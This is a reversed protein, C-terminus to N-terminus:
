VIAHCKQFDRLREAHQRPSIFLQVATQTSVYMEVLDTSEARDNMLHFTWRKNCRQTCRTGPTPNHLSTAPFNLLSTTQLSTTKFNFSAYASELFSTGRVTEDGELILGSTRGAREVEAGVGM